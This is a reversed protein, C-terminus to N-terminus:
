PKPKPSKLTLIIRRVSSGVVDMVSNRKKRMADHRIKWALAEYFISKYNIEFAERHMLPYADGGREALKRKVLAVQPYPTPTPPLPM